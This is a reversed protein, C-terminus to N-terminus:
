TSSNLQPRCLWDIEVCRSVVCHVTLKPILNLLIIIILLNFIMRVREVQFNRYGEFMNESCSTVTHFLSHGLIVLVLSLM